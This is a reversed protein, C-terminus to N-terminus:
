FQENVDSVVKMRTSDKEFLPWSFFVVGRSPPKLSEEVCRKFDQTTFSKEIYYPYVQISPLVKGSVSNNMDSVVDSIWEADRGLMQSYCMPSVFDTYASMAVLDQGAIRIKGNNYDDSRWPVVHVNVLIDTKIRHSEEYLEKVMSTILDCRYTDWESQYNQEIWNAKESTTLFSGPIKAGTKVYFGEICSDCYCSREITSYDRDAYIKEWYVFQRIFDISVGDPDLSSIFASLQDKIGDRYLKRSPCVFKVWEESARAGTNTIAYLTSDTRLMEPNFFVPFIIFVSIDRSKLAERFDKDAALTTSVFATNIGMEEWESALKEYDGAYDYIKIGIIKESNEKCSIFFLAIFVIFYFRKM